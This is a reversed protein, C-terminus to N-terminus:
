LIYCIDLGTTKLQSAKQNIQVKVDDPMKNFQLKITKLTSNTKLTDILALAGQETIKNWKVDLEKLTNNHKLANAIVTIDDDTINNDGIDILTLTRNVRLMEAVLACGDTSMNTQYIDLHCLTPNIMVADCIFKIGKDRLNNRCINLHKLTRNTKLMEGVAKCGTFTIENRSLNLKELNRNIILANAILICGDDDMGSVIDLSTLTQNTKLVDALIETAQCDGSKVKLQKVKKNQKLASIIRKMDAHSFNANDVELTASSLLSSLLVSKTESNSKFTLTQQQNQSIASQLHSNNDSRQDQFQNTTNAVTMVGNTLKTKLFIVNSNENLLENIITEQEDLIHIPAGNSHIFQDNESLDSLRETLLTRLHAVTLSCDIGLTLQTVGDRNIIVKTSIPTKTQFYSAMSM